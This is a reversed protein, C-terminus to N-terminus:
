HLFHLIYIQIFIHISFFSKELYLLTLLLAQQINCFSIFLRLSKLSHFLITITQSFLHFYQLIHFHNTFFTFM